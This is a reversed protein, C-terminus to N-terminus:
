RRLSEDIRERVPRTIPGGPTREGAGDSKAEDTLPSDAGWWRGVQGPPQPNRGPGLRRRMTGRHVLFHLVFAGLAATAAIAIVIIIGTSM